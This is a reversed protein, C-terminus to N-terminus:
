RVAAADIFLRCAPTDSKDCQEHVVEGIFEALMAEVATCAAPHLPVLARLPCCEGQIYLGDVQEVIRGAGGLQALLDVAAEARQRVSGHPRPHQLALARGAQRLLVEEDGADAREEVVSLLASLLPLYARSLGLSGAATLRYEHAPKGVGRRVVRYAVLGEGELRNLHERVANASIGLERALESTTRDAACLLTLLKGRTDEAHGRRQGVM